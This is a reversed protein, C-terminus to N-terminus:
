NGKPTFGPILHEIEGCVRKACESIPHEKEVPPPPPAGELLQVLTLGMAEALRNAHDLGPENVAKLYADLQNRGVGSLRILDQKKLGAESMARELNKAFLETIKKNKMAM